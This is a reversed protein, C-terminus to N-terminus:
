DRRKLIHKIYDVKMSLTFDIPIIAHYSSQVQQVTEGKYDTIPTKYPKTTDNYVSAFKGAFMHDIIIDNNLEQVYKILPNYYDFPTKIGREEIERPIANKPLGAIVTHIGTDDEKIYKKAGMGCFNKYTDEFDWTGLSQFIEPNETNKFIVTNKHEIRKNYDLLADKLGDGTDIFYLSDTDYQIISDPYRALFHMLVARAYSTCWFALYPNLWFDRRVDRFTKQKKVCPNYQEDIDELTDNIRTACVGYYSNVRRKCDFYALTNQKGATKLNAKEEYDSWMASLLWQPARRYGSFSWLNLVRATFTYLERYASLDVDNVCLVINYAEYIKGNYVTMKSPEGARKYLGTGHKNLIKHESITAHVTRAKIHKIHLVAFYPKKDKELHERRENLNGRERKLRGYPYMKHSLQAPYDSTLDACTVDHLIEGAYEINSGCLGGCYGYDRCVSWQFSDTACSWNQKKLYHINDKAPKGRTMFNFNEREETLNADNRIHEKLKLRVFGSSTYPIVCVGDDQTYHKIANIHMEALTTVDAYMYAKETETLETKYTRVRLYDFTGTLKQNNENCWNKAIDALSHGFLGISERIEVYDSIQCFLIDRNTKAFVKKIDFNECLYGKLFAWEHAFNAVWIIYKADTNYTANFEEVAACITKLANLIDYPTRYIEANTPSIALQWAYCFCHDVATKYVPTKDKKYHDIVQRTITTSESDLGAGCKFLADVHEAPKTIGSEVLTQYISTYDIM